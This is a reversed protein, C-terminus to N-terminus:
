LDSSSETDYIMPLYQVGSTKQIKKVQPVFGMKKYIAVAYISSNVTYKQEGNQEKIYAFLEKAIGRRQYDEDVYLLSIHNGYRLEIVGVITEFYNVKFFLRSEATKMRKLIKEYEIFAYFQNNGKKTHHCSLFRDYVKKIFLIIPTIDNINAEKIM